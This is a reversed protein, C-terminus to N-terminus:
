QSAADKLRVSEILVTEVPVDGMGNKRATRVDEIKQVVDMGSVVKGFVAYGYGSKTSNKHDLFTNKKTNIFFQATASDVVGTRAMALTGKENKLGNTAENKIPALVGPKRALNPLMGGGQIMFSPIVRHFITGDFFGSKTYALFNAVSIPAKDAFLVAEITGKSTVIVVVPNAAVAPAAAKEAEALAVSSSAALSIGALLSMVFWKPIQM